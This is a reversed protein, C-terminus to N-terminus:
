PQSIEFELDINITGKIQYNESQTVYEYTTIIQHQINM